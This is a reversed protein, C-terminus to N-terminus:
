DNCREKLCRPQHLHVVHPQPDDDPEALDGDHAVDEGVGDVELLSILYLARSFLQCLLQCLTANTTTFIQM